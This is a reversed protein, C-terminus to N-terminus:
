HDLTEEIVEPPVLDHTAHATAQLILTVDRQSPSLFRQLYPYFNYLVLKHVGVVRAILRIHLLKLRREVLWRPHFKMQPTM